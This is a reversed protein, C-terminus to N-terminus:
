ADIAAWYDAEFRLRLREDQRIRHISSLEKDLVEFRKRDSRAARMDHRIEDELCNYDASSPPAKLQEREDM